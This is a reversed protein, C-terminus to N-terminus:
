NHRCSEGQCKAYHRLLSAFHRVLVRHRSAVNRLEFRDTALNYLEKEGTDRHSIFKWNSVTVFGRWRWTSDAESTPIEILQVRPSPSLVGTVRHYLSIGDMAAVPQDGAQRTLALITPALDQLGVVQRYTSNPKFGPGRIILPMHSAPEYAVLKGGLRRHEGHLFGNDSALIIYTNGLENAQRLTDVLRAVEADVGKLAEIRQAYRHRNDVDGAEHTASPEPDM